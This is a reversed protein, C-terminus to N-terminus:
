PTVYIVMFSWLNNMFIYDDGLYRIFINISFEPLNTLMRTADCVYFIEM